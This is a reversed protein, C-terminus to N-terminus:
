TTRFTMRTQLMIQRRAITAALATISTFVKMTEFNKKKSPTLWTMVAARLRINLEEGRLASVWQSIM